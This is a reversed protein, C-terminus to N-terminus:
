VVFSPSFLIDTILNKAPKATPAASPATAPTKSAGFDPSSVLSISPSKADSKAWYPISMDFKRTIPLCAVKLINIFEFADEPLSYQLSGNDRLEMLLRGLLNPGIYKDGQIANQTLVEGYIKVTAELSLKEVNAYKFGIPREAEM